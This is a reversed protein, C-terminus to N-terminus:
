RPLDPWPRPIVGRVGSGHGRESALELRGGLAGLRERMSAIGVGATYSPDFGNGDDVVEARVEAEDIEILVELRSADAHLFTNYVAERLILYLEEAVVPSLEAPDGTVRVTSTVRPGAFRDVYATLAEGLDRNGLADRVETAITRIVDIAEHLSQRATRLQAAAREPESAAYMDHLELSQLAVGVSHAARDHMDRAVRRREERQARLNHQLLTDVYTTAARGVRKMIAQNLEVALDVASAADPAERTVIRLASEFLIRAAQMSEVPPLGETIRRVGIAASLDGDSRQRDGTLYAELDDLISSIQSEFQETRVPDDLLTSGTARLRRLVDDHVARRIGASLAVSLRDSNSGVVM